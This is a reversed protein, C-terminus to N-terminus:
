RLSRLDLRSSSVKDSRRDFMAPRVPLMSIHTSLSGFEVFRHFQCSSIIGMEREASSFTHDNRIAERDLVTQFFAEPYDRLCHIKPQINFSIQEFLDIRFFRLRKIDVHLIHRGRLFEISYAGRGLCPIVILATKVCFAFALSTM